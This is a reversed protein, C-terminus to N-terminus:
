QLKSPDDILIENDIENWKPNFSHIKEKNWDSIQLLTLM